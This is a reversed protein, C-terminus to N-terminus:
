EEGKIKKHAYEQMVSPRNMSGSVNHREPTDINQNQKFRIEALINAEENSILIFHTELDDPKIFHSGNSDLIMIYENKFSVLEVVQKDGHIRRYKQGVKAIM